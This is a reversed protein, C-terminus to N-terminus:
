NRENRLTPKKQRFNLRSGATFKTESRGGISRAEVETEHDINKRDRIELKRLEQRLLEEQYTPKEQAQMLKDMTTEPDTIAKYTRASPTLIAASFIPLPASSIM